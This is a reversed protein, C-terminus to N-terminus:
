AGADDFLSEGQEDVLQRGKDLSMATANDQSPFSDARVFEHQLAEEGRRWVVRGAVRWGTAERMPAAEIEFGSYSETATVPNPENNGPFLRKILRSLM